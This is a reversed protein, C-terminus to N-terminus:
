RLKIHRQSKDRNDYRNYQAFKYGLVNGDVNTCTYPGKSKLRVVKIKPSQLERSINGSVNSILVSMGTTM